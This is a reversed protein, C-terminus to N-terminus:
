RLLGRILKKLQRFSALLAYGNCPAGSLFAGEQVELASQDIPFVFVVNGDNGLEAHDLNVGRSMLWSATNISVTRAKPPAATTTTPM